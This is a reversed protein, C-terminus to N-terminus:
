NISYEQQFINNVDLNGYADGIDWPDLPCHIQLRAPQLFDLFRSSRLVIEYVVSWM